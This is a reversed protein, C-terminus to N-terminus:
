PQGRGEQHIGECPMPQLQHPSRRLMNGKIMTIRWIRQEKSCMENDAYNTVDGTNRAASDVMVMSMKNCTSTVQWTEWQIEKCCSESNHDSTILTAGTGQM